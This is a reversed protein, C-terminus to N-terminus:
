ECAIFQIAEADIVRGSVQGAIEKCVKFLFM